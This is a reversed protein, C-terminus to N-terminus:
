ASERGYLRAHGAVLMLDNAHRGEVYVDALWRGYKGASFTEIVVEKGFVLSRLFDRAARGAELTDGRMEPADIGKLRLPRRKAWFGFGLDIDARITDGDYVSVVIARYTYPRRSM